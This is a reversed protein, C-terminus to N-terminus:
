IMLRSQQEHFDDARRSQGLTNFKRSLLYRNLVVVSKKKEIRS